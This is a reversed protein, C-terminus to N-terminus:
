EPEIDKNYCPSEAIEDNKLKKECQKETDFCFHGDGMQDYCYNTQV